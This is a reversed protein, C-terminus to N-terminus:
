QQKKAKSPVILLGSLPALKVKIFQDKGRAGKARLIGTSSQGSGGLDPDDSSFAVRYSTSYAPISIEESEKASFNMVAILENDSKDFRRFAVLNEDRMDPYIWDFGEWSFDIEWLQPTKLYFRNLKSTYKRLAEHMPYDLMFWELQTKFDWERFQGYEQGMFLLKKGPHAIQYALFLRIGAFKQEYTGFMKDILSKKGHVVEDHSVPLIYNESFAYCLSFTLKDHCDKRFFPDCQIYDFMDNSWGMNWKFNFGLGGEHVPKTVKAYATSEEAIMLVDPFERFITTNLKKFFAQAELNENTGYVNPIWQGPERAYDLYLMSAVADVRLGDIHFERLWYLASSILFCQVENRGVDFCRTGWETHEMRDWGQYEYLPSGDFDRLGHEDKPFHAPVWDLIVGIGNTHLKNIFYKLDEPNGFRSTPAFYGTVQYGWSAYYPFETLPLLEVHTYGMEKVYPVLMDAIERYNYYGEDEENEPEKKKWSALHMEYINMPVDWYGNEVSKARHTFWSSDRWTFKSETHIISATKLGTESYTAYPDAKYHEGSGSIVLYKYKMGELSEKAPLFAEWIGMETIKKMPLAKEWANFDGVVFIEHARPAWTRFVYGEGLKHVGLYTYASFNNGQHFYYNALEDTTPSAKTQKKIGKKSVKKETKKAEM